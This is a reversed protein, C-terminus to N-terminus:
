DDNSVTVEITKIEPPNDMLRNWLSPDEQCVQQVVSIFFDTDKLLEQVATKFLAAYLDQTDFEALEHEASKQDAKEMLDQMMKMIRVKDSNSVNEDRLMRPFKRGFEEVSMEDNQADAMRLLRSEQKLKAHIDRYRDGWDELARSM